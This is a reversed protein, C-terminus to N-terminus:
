NSIYYASAYMLVFVVVSILGLVLGAIATGKPRKKTSGVVIGAIALGIAIIAFIISVINLLPIWVGSIAVIGVVLAAVGLGNGKPANQVYVTQTPPVGSQQDYPQGQSQVSQQEQSKVNTNKEQNDMSMHGGKM